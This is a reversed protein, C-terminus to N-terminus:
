RKVAIAVLYWAGGNTGITFSGEDVKVNPGHAYQVVVRYVPPISPGYTIGSPMKFTDNSSADLPALRASTIKEAEYIALVSETMDKSWADAGGWYVLADVAAKDHSNVAVQFRSMLEKPSQAPTTGAPSAAGFLPLLCLVLLSRKLKM